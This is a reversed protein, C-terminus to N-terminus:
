PCCLWLTLKCNCPQSQGKPHETQNQQNPEQHLELIVGHALLGSQPSSLAPCQMHQLRQTPTTPRGGPPALVFWGPDMVSFQPGREEGALGGGERGTEGLCGTGGM